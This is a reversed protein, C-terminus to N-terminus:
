CRGRLVDTAQANVDSLAGVRTNNGTDVVDGVVGLSASSASRTNDTAHGKTSGLGSSDVGSNSVSDSSTDEHSNGSSVFGLISGVDRRGRFGGCKSNTGRIALICEGREGVEAGNDVDNGRTDGDKGGPQVTASYTLDFYM